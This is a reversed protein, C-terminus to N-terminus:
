QAAERDSIDAIARRWRYGAGLDGRYLSNYIIRHSIGTVREAQYVSVFRNVVVNNKDIQLIGKGSVDRHKKAIRENRTGHNSNEVHSVWELNEARNDAKDENIHNVENCGERRPCFAKAVLRHVSETLRHSPTTDTDYLFVTKYGKRDITKLVKSYKPMVVEKGNRMLTIYRTKSRVRGLNSVEYFKEFGQIDKWIEEM